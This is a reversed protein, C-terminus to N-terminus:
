NASGGPPAGVDVYVREGTAPKVYVQVLKGSAPDIFREETPMFDPPPKKQALKKYTVREFFAGLILVAGIVGLWFIVFAPAGLRFMWAAMLLALIGLAGLVAKLISM